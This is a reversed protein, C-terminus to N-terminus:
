HAIVLKKYLIHDNLTLRVIYTGAPQASLDIILPNESTRIQSASWVTQGISNMIEMAATENNFVSLDVSFVGNGPNPMISLNNEPEAIGACPNVFISFAPSLPGAGCANEAYVTLNGSTANAAFDLSVISSTGNITVGTGSYSWIYDLANALTGCDYLVTTQGQCVTDSGIILGMENVLELVTIPFPASVTGAGCPNTGNVTLSGSTAFPGFDLTVSNANENLTVGSGTYNWDYSDAGTIASTTYAVNSELVCAYSNGSITGAPDPAASCSSYCFDDLYCSNYSGAGCLGSGTNTVIVSTDIDWVGDREIDILLYVTSGIFEMRFNLDTGLNLGSTVSLVNNNDCSLFYANFYGASSNDQVKFLINTVDSTYRAVIGMFKTQGSGNYIARGSVYGNTATSGNLTAFNWDTVAPSKLKNSEVSWDNSQETWGPITTTNAIDFYDCTQAFTGTPALVALCFLLLFIKM